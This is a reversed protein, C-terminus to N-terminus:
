VLQDKTKLHERIGEEEAMQAVLLDLREQTQTDIAALYSYLKGNLILNNYVM